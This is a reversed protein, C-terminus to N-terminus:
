DNEEGQQDCFFKFDDPLEIYCFFDADVFYDKDLHIGSEGDYFSGDIYGYIHAGSGDSYFAVINSKPQEQYFYKIGMVLDRRKM